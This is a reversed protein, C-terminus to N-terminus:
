YSVDPIMMNKLNDGIRAYVSFGDDAGFILGMMGPFWRMPAMAIHVLDHDVSAYCSALVGDVMINGDMTVLM